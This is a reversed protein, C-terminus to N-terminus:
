NYEEPNSKDLLQGSQCTVGNIKVSLENAIKDCTSCNVYSIGTLLLSIASESTLIKSFCEVKLDSDCVSVAELLYNKDIISDGKLIISTIGLLKIEKIFHEIEALTLKTSDVILSLSKNKLKKVTKKLFTLVEELYGNKVTFSSIAVLIEDAGEKVAQKISYKLTKLNEEGYPYNILARVKVFSGRLLNKALSIFPPFVCVANFEQKKATQIQEIVETKSICTTDIFFNLLKYIKKAKYFGFEKILEIESKGLIESILNLAKEESSAFFDKLISGEESSFETEIDTNETLLTNETNEM